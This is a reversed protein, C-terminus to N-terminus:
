GGRAGRAAVALLQAGCRRCARAEAIKPRAETWPRSHVMSRWEVLPGRSQHVRDM